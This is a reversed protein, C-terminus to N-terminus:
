FGFEIREEPIRFWVSILEGLSRIINENALYRQDDDLNSGSSNDARGNNTTLHYGVVACDDATGNFLLEKNRNIMVNCNSYPQFISTAFGEALQQLQQTNVATTSNTSIILTPM